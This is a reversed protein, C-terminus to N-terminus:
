NKPLKSRSYNKKQSIETVNSRLHVDRDFSHKYAEEGGGGGGSSLSSLGASYWNDWTIFSLSMFNRNWAIVACIEFILSIGKGVQLETIKYLIWQLFQIYNKWVILLIVTYHIECSYAFGFWPNSNDATWVSLYWKQIHTWSKFSVHVNCHSNDYISPECLNISESPYWWKYQFKTIKAQGQSEM